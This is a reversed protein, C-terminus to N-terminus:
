SRNECCYAGGERQVIPRPDMEPQPPIEPRHRTPRSAKKRAPRFGMLTSENIELMRSLRQIYADREIPDPLDDILPLVQSAVDSKTKPDNLDQDDALTEM